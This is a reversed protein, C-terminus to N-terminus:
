RTEEGNQSFGGNLASLEAYTAQIGLLEAVTQAVTAFGTRVGILRPPISKGYLLLPVRERTHDTSEDSPDCGHDATILLADEEGLMPLLEGLFVDFENLALAYGRADNRHGYLSDFDVLNVFCLGHFGRRALEATRAMCDPNGHDPYAETIGREAFIDSIKGVAIVSLGADSLRDLVTEGHPALSFDRRDSTRQFNGASGAFPRAIVRGVAYKGVCLRRAIRCLEYLRPLPIVDTHAAIQLVSDASTYLIPSGSRLHEEGYDRIADTGSYPLNCLFDVGCASRLAETLESPFGSPFTPMPESSILGALEWHGTTTDKGASCETLAGVSALPFPPANLFEAGPALALGLRELNPLKLLGSEWAARLTHAGADGFAEADPAHGIGLSDLVILFVRRM